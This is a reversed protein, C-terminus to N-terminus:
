QARGLKLKLQSLLGESFVLRIGIGAIIFLEALLLFAKFETSATFFAIAIALWTVINLKVMASGFPQLGDQWWILGFVLLQGFGLGIATGYAFAVGGLAPHLLVSCLVAVGSALATTVMLLRSSGRMLLLQDSAGLSLMILQGLALPVLYQGATSFGGGFFGMIEVPFFVCVSIVPSAVAFTFASVRQFLFKLDEMRNQAYYASITPTFIASVSIIVISVLMTLRSAAGFHAVDEASGLHGMILPMGAVVVLNILRAVMMPAVYHAVESTEPLKGTVASKYSALRSSLWLQGLIATVIGSLLLAMLAGQFAMGFAFFIWFLLLRSGPYIIEGLLTSPVIMQIGQFVGTQLAIKGVSLGSILFLVSVVISLGKPVLEPILLMATSMFLMTILSSLWFLSNFRTFIGQLDGVILCYRRAAVDLSFGALTSSIQSLAFGVFYVGAVVPGLLRTLSLIFGFQLVAGLVKGVVGIAAGSFIKKLDHTADVEHKVDNIM